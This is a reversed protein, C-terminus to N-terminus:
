DFLPLFRDRWDDDAVSRRFFAELVDRPSGGELLAILCTLAALQYSLLEPDIRAVRVAEEFAWIMKEADAPKGTARIEHALADLDFREWDVADCDAGV